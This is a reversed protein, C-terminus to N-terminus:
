GAVPRVSAQAIRYEQVIRDAVSKWSREAVYRRGAEGCRERLLADRALRDLAAALEPASGPPVTLGAEGVFEVLGPVASAVVPLGAAMGELLSLPMGERESPVVLVEGDAWRVMLEEGQLFGHFTVRGVLDLFQVLRELEDRCEGDGVVHLHMPETTRVLAQLLVSLNKQPVLRGVSLLQLPRAGTAPATLARFAALDVGNSIVAIREDELRYVRAVWEAQADSLVIV